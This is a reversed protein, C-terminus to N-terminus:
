MSIAGIALGCRGKEKRYSFFTETDCSTCLGASAIHDALIGSKQLQLTLAKVLDVHPKTYDYSVTNQGPFLEEFQDSVETGVEFCCGQICPALATLMDKPDCGYLDRMRVITKGVIDLVTSRWGSHVLGIAKRVPDYLYVITCDASHKVLTVGPRNTILADAQFLTKDDFESLGMDADQVERVIDTHIQYSFAYGSEEVGMARALRRYNEVVNARDDGRTFSMNMTALHGESVGGHKTTFATKAGSQELLPITYLILEGDTMVKFKKDINM